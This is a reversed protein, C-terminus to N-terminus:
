RLAAGAQQSPFKAPELQRGVGTALLRGLFTMPQARLIGPSLGSSAPEIGAVEM